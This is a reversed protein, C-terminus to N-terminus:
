EPDLRLLVVNVKTGSDEFAGPIVESYEHTFGDVLHKDKLSAPLIAVIRGDLKVHEAAKKVHAEARGGSFPPNMIIKDYKGGKFELFDGGIVEFGRLKLVSQFTSNIEICRVQAPDIGEVLHGIGASPELILDEPQIDALIRTKWLLNEETWYFQQEKQNPLLGTRVIQALVEEVPYDFSWVSCECKGGLLTLIREVERRTAKDFDQRISDTRIEEYDRRAMDLIEILAESLWDPIIDERLEPTKKVKPEGTHRKVSVAQPYISALIKNLKLAIEPHIEIHATGKRYIRLSFAGGDFTQWKGFEQGDAMQRILKHTYHWKPEDRGALKAVLARLDHIYEVRSTCTDYTRKAGGYKWETVIRNLILRQRFGKPSNTVHDGSLNRFVGDVKEALFKDRSLLLDQLTRIVTPKDFAPTKMDHIATNWDNRKKAPMVDLVDTFNIARSWYEADLARMAGERGFIGEAMYCQVKNGRLFYGIGQGKHEIFDAIRDISAKAADYEDFLLALSQAVQNHQQGFVELANVAVQM